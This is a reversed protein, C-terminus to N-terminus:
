EGAEVARGVLPVGAQLCAGLAAGPLRGEGAPLLQGYAPMGGYGYPLQRHPLFGPQLKSDGAGGGMGEHMRNYRGTYRANMGATTNLGLTYEEAPIVTSGPIKHARVTDELIYCCFLHGIYLHSLTSHKGAAMRVIKITANDM